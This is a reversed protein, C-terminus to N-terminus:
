LIDYIVTKYVVGTGYIVAAPYLVPFYYRAGSFGAGSLAINGMPTRAASLTSLNLKMVDLPNYVAM